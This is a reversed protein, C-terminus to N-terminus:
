VRILEPVFNLYDASIIHFEIGEYVRVRPIRYLGHIHGYYVRRVGYQKLLEVTEQCVFDGFVPPFHFFAIMEQGDAVSQGAQLSMELRLAERAAIKAYDADRPMDAPDAFWGRSGVLVAGQARIANNQLFEINTHGHAAFLERMKSLSNWYYDHNGRSLVKHGPLSALFLLDTQAEALNIGWSLDGPIVVTDQDTVVAEFGAKLKKAHDRWRDGFVDMPKDTDFSLHPDALVFLAM